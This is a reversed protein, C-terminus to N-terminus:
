AWLSVEQARVVQAQRHVQQTVLDFVTWSAHVLQVTMVEGTGSVEPAPVRLHTEVRVMHTVADFLTRVLIILQQTVQDTREVTLALSEGKDTRLGEWSM